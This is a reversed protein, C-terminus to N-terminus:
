LVSADYVGGVEENITARREGRRQLSPTFAPGSPHGVVFIKQVEKTALLWTRASSSFHQDSIKPNM